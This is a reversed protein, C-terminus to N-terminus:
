VMGEIIANAYKQITTGQMGPRSNVELVFMSNLKKSHIVDVAGYTRGLAKVAGLAIDAVGDPPVIDGRCFVYGNATNRVLADAEGGRKKKKQQIDIVKEDWVHVRYEADKPIYATYLPAVQVCEESKCITIGRGESSNTLARVVVRKSGLYPVGQLNTCFAPCPVGADKFAQLQVVKDIGGKFWIPKRRRVRDPTVRYVRYRLQQTLEASLAKLAASRINHSVLVIKPM